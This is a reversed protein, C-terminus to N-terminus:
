HKRFCTSCFWTKDSGYTGHSMSGPRGCGTACLHTNYHAPRDDRAKGCKGCRTIKDPTGQYGCKCAWTM